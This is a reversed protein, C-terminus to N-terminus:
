LRSVADTFGALSLEFVVIDGGNATVSVKLLTGMKMALVLESSAVFEAYSGNQDATIIPFRVAEANDVSVNVGDVLRLGHPLALTMSIGADTGVLNVAIARQRTEASLLVQSVSCKLDASTQQSVCSVQWPRQPAPAEQAFSTSVFFLGLGVLGASRFFPM